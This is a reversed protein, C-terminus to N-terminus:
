HLTSDILELLGVAFVTSLQKLDEFEFSDQGDGAIINTLIHHQSAVRVKRAAPTHECEVTLESREIRRKLSFDAKAPRFRSHIM